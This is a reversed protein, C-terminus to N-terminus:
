RRVYYHQKTKGCDVELLSPLNDTDMDGGFHVPKHPACPDEVHSRNHLFRASFDMVTECKRRYYGAWRKRGLPWGDPVECRARMARMWKSGQTMSIFEGRYTRWVTTYKEVMAILGMGSGRAKRSLVHSMAAWDRDSSRWGAESVMAIALVERATPAEDSAASVMPCSFGLLLFLVASLVVSDKM